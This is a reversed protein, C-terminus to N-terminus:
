CHTLLVIPGIGWSRCYVQCWKHNRGWAWHSKEIGFHLTWFGVWLTLLGAHKWGFSFGVWEGFDIQRRM